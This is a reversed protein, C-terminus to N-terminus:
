DADKETKKDSPPNIFMLGIRVFLAIFMFAFSAFVVFSIFEVIRDSM